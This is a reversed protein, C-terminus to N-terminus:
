FLMRASFKRRLPRLTETIGTEGVQKNDEYSYGVLYM